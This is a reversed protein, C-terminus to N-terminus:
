IFGHYPVNLVNLKHPHNSKLFPDSISNQITDENNAKIWRPLTSWTYTLLRPGWQNLYYRTTQQACEMIPAVANSFVTQLIDNKNDSLFYCDAMIVM